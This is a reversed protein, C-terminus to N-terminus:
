QAAGGSLRQSAVQGAVGKADKDKLEAYIAKAQDPRNMSEYLAGLQLKAMGATEVDTPKAILQNYLDIAQQDRGTQHYLSALAAKALSALDKDMGGDLKQLRAEATATQGMEIETLAAFYSDNRGPDTMGYKGAAAAFIKNAATARDLSTAYTPTGPAAPEGPTAIAADYVQMGASFQAAAANSRYNYLAVSGVGLLIVALLLLSTTIVSSRNEGAWELGHKTTDVFTDKKLKQRTKNDV